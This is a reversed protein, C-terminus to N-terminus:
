PAFYSSIDLALQTVGSAYADISFISVNATPVIAMNSTVAGDVANLTWALPQPQGDKWLTLYNLAGRPFVTANFVVAQTTASLRCPNGPLELVPIRLRGNFGAIFIKRTDLTRCPVTPYLSLGGAGPVAFYGNIDIVLDTDNSAYANIDGGAGAPVIAANAVITGTLDNLIAVLPQPQGTPWVTLYDVPRGMRPVVAFNMSYALATVPINCSSQLVPFDRPQGGHLYPGGLPGNPNRTDAVRCSTLPYFALANPNPLPAFYGNIDIVVNTTDSAYVSVEENSGAPVIAADSKIRGDLSNLTTTVSRDEGTPYVTLYQLQGNPVVTVNLVYAGATSPISCNGQPIPFSRFTGGQIPPGGFTGNPLRTDVVRCPAVPIFRLPNSSAQQAIASLSGLAFTFALLHLVIRRM